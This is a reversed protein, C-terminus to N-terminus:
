DQELCSIHSANYGHGSDGCVRHFAANGLKVQIPTVRKHCVMCEEDTIPTTYTHEGEEVEVVYFVDNKTYYLNRNMDSDQVSRLAIPKSLAPVLQTGFM